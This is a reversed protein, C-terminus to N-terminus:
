NAEFHLIWPVYGIWLPLTLSLGRFALPFFGYTMLSKKSKNYFLPPASFNSVLLVFKASFSFDLSSEFIWLYVFCSSSFITM